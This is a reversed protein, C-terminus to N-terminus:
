WQMQLHPTSRGAPLKQLLQSAEQQCSAAIGYWVFTLVDNFLAIRVVRTMICFLNIRVVHSFILRGLFMSPVAQIM